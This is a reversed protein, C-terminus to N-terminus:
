PYLGEGAVLSRRERHPGRTGAGWVPPPEQPGEEKGRDETENEVCKRHVRGAAPTGRGTGGEPFRPSNQGWHRLSPHPTPLPPLHPGLGPSGTKGSKVYLVCSLSLIILLKLITVLPPPSLLPGQPVASTTCEPLPRSTVTCILFPHLSVFSFLCM